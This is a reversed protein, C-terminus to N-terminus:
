KVRLADLRNWDFALGLGPLDPATFHGDVLALPQTFLVDWWSVYEIWFGNAVASVLHVSVEHFVHPTIRMSRSEAMAAVKMWESIGGVRQLDAMAIDICDGDMLRAFGLKSYDNEGACVPTDLAAAIKRLGAHDDFPVPDEIWALDFRALERGLRIARETTWGQVVDVMLVVDPGIAARVAEVRAIDDCPDAAGTRMKMARFGQAVYGEAEEVIADLSDSLFLGGAYVPLPRRTGGLLRWLPEDLARAKIDWCATDLASQALMAVGAHGFFNTERWLTTWLSATSRPDEGVVFRALDRVMHLLVAAREAGFTWLYAVGDIGADTHVTVLVNDITTIQHIPTVIRRQLPVSVVVCDIATIRINM